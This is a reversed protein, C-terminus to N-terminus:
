GLSSLLRVLGAVNRVGLKDLVRSRHIEVTRPSCDLELAVEKNSLGENLLEAVEKERPTLRSLAEQRAASGLESTERAETIAAELEEASFPKEIFSVAGLRMAQVAAKVDGHASIMVVPYDPKGRRSLDRLVDFGSPGPMKLDLFVVDWDSESGTALFAEGSEFGSIERGTRDLVLLAAERLSDDDDVIAIKEPASM